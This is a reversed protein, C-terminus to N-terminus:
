DATLRLCDEKEDVDYRVNTDVRKGGEYNERTRLLVQTEDDFGYLLTPLASEKWVPLRLRASEVIVLIVYLIGILLM